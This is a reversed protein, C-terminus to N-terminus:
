RRSLSTPWVRRWKELDEEAPPFMANLALYFLAGVAAGTLVGESKSTCGIRERDPCTMYGVGAFVGASTAAGEMAEVVVNRSGASGDVYYLSTWALALTRSAGIPTLFLTDLTTEAVRGVVPQQWRASQARVKLGPPLDPVSAVEVPSTPATSACGALVAVVALWRM